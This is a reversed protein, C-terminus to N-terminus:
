VESEPKQIVAPTSLPVSVRGQATIQEPLARALHELREVARSPDPLAYSRGQRILDDHTQPALQGNQKVELIVQEAQNGTLGLRLADNTFLSFRTLDRSIPPTSGVPNLGMTEAM